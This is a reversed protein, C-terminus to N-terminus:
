LAPLRCKQRPPPHEVAVAHKKRQKSRLRATSCATMTAGRGTADEEVEEEAAHRAMHGGLLAV